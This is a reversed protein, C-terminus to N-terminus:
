SLREENNESSNRKDNLSKHKKLLESISICIKTENEQQQKKNNSNNNFNSKSRLNAYYVSLYKVLEIASSTM